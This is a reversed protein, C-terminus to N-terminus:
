SFSGSCGATFMVVRLHVARFLSYAIDHESVALVIIHLCTVQM